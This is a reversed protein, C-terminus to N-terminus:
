MSVFSLKTLPQCIRKCKSTKTEKKEKEKEKEKEVILDILSAPNTENIDYHSM